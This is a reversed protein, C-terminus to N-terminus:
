VPEARPPADWLGSDGAIAGDVARLRAADTLAPMPPLGATDSSTLHPADGTAPATHHALESALTHPDLAAEVVSAGRVRVEPVDPELVARLAELLAKSSPFRDEPTKELARHIIAALRPDVDPVVHEIPVPPEVIQKVLTATPTDGRFPAEGSLLEYMLVGCAYVDSRGDVAGGMAQEPSMYTPTGIVVDDLTLPAGKSDELSEGVLKALGFDCVKVFDYEGGAGGHEDRRVLMINGPKLDRHVIGVRHAVTLVAAVQVMIRTVDASSLRGARALIHRLEEGDLLEMALYSLGDDDGFDYVRLSNPHDIRSAARAETHFRLALRPTAARLVKIAVPKDLALHHARYVRGCAGQGIFGEIRFRGAVVRGLLSGEGDPAAVTAVTEPVPGTPHPLEHSM